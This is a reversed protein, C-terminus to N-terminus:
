FNMLVFRDDQVCIQFKGLPSVDQIIVFHSCGEYTPQGVMYFQHQEWTAVVTKPFGAYIVPYLLNCGASFVRM